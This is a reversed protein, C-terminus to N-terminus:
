KKKQTNQAYFLHLLSILDKANLEYITDPNKEQFLGLIRYYEDEDISYISMMETKFDPNEVIALYAKAKENQKRVKPLKKREKEYKTYRSFVGKYVYSPGFTQMNPVGLTQTYAKSYTPNRFPNDQPIAPLGPIQFAPMVAISPLMTKEETLYILPNEALHRVSNEVKHYGIRSFIITDTQVARISFYGHDNSVTGTMSNKIFINVNSVGQLTTSDAVMGNYVSQTFGTVSILFTVSFLYPIKSNM